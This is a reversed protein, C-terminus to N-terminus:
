MRFLRGYFGSFPPTKEPKSKKPNERDVKETHGSSRRVLKYHWKM